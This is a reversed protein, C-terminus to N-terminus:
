KMLNKLLNLADENAKNIADGQKKVKQQSKSLNKSIDKLKDGYNSASNKPRQKTWANKLISEAYDMDPKIKPKSKRQSVIKTVASSYNSRGKLGKYAGYAALGTLAAAGGYIAAKKLKSGVSSKTSSKRRGWRMGKVGFHELTDNNM